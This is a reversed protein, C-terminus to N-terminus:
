KRGQYDEINALRDNQSPHTQWLVQVIMWKGHYKALHMYDTGWWAILKASAIQDLIDYVVIDKSADSPIRGDNNYNKALEVFETFTMATFQYTTDVAFFGGKILDPHVSERIRSPNGEYVGEVYDLVAQRVEEYENM